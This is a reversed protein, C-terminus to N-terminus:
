VTTGTSLRYRVKTYRPACDSANQKSFLPCSIQMGYGGLFYIPMGIGKHIISGIIMFLSQSCDLM